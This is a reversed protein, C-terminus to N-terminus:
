NCDGLAAFSPWIRDWTMCDTTRKLRFLTEVKVYHYHHFGMHFNLLDLHNKVARYFSITKKMPSDADRPALM